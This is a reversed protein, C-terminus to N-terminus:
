IGALMINDLLVSGRFGSGSFEVKYVQGYGEISQLDIFSTGDAANMPFDDEWVLNGSVDFGRVWLTVSDLIPDTCASNCHSRVPLSAHFSIARFPLTCTLSSSEIEWTNESSGAVMGGRNGPDLCGEYSYKYGLGCSCLSSSSPQGPIDFVPGCDCDEPSEFTGCEIDQINNWQCQNPSLIGGEFDIITISADIGSSQCHCCNDNAVGMGGDWDAGDEPCGPDNNAEYWECGDGYSDVWNPTDNCTGTGPAVPTPSTGDEEKCHCCNDNAVGMGGDWDAGDEPCGPDNNAEYWECGDGYSDVWNPTDNCTGTGPAVPTPSTGDEEKCHCCNDKPLGM